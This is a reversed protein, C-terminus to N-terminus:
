MPQKILQNWNLIELEMKLRIFGNFGVLNTSMNHSNDMVKCSPILSIAMCESLEMKGQFYLKKTFCMPPVMKDVALKHMEKLNPNFAVVTHQFDHLLVLFQM